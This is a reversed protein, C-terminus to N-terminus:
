TQPSYTGHEKLTVGAGQLHERKEVVTVDEDEEGNCKTAVTTTITVITTTTTKTTRRSDSQLFERDVQDEDPCRIIRWFQQRGGHRSWIHVKTGDNKSGTHLDVTFVSNPWHILIVDNGERPECKIDWATPFENTVISSDNGLGRDITMYHKNSSYLSRIFWGHDGLKGLEWKQDKGRYWSFGVVSKKDGDLTLMSGGMM